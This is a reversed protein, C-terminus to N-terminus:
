GCQAQFAGKPDGIQASQFAGFLSLYLKTKYVRLDISYYIGNRKHTLGSNDIKYECGLIIFPCFRFIDTNKILANMM